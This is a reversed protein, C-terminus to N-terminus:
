QITKPKPVLKPKRRPNRKPRPKQRPKQTKRPITKPKHKNRPQSSGSSGISIDACNYYEESFAGRSTCQPIRDKYGGGCNGWKKPGNGGQFFELVGPPNCRDAAAYYFHLVCHKCKFGPPLRYRMSGGSGFIDYPRSKTRKTCPVYWRGPYQKDIPACNKNFGSDCTKSAARRLLRCLGNKFCKEAVEGGCRDVDCVHFEFFGNHHANLAVKFDVTSGAIYNRTIKGDYYFAGGRLHDQNPGKLDSCVGARWKFSRKMPEFPVWKGGVEQKQSKVGSGEAPGKNGAPFFLKGDKPAMPDFKKMPPYINSGSLAGRPVPDVLHGHADAFSITILVSIVFMVTNTTM